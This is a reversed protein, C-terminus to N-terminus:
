KNKKKKRLVKRKFKKIRNNQECLYIKGVNKKKQYKKM